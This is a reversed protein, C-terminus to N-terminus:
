LVNEMQMSLHMVLVHKLVTKHYMLPKNNLVNELRLMPFVETLVSNLKLLKLVDQLQPFLIIRANNLKLYNADKLLFPNVM